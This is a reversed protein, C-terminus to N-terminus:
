RQRVFQRVAIFSGVTGIAMAVTIVVVIQWMPIFYIRPVLLRVLEVRSILQHLPVMGLSLILVGLIAGFAGQLWGELLFPTFIARRSAGLLRMIEIELRHNFLALRITNSIVFAVVGGILILSLGGVFTVGEVIRKMEAVDSQSYRIAEVFSEEAVKSQLAFFVSEVDSFTRMTIQLSIPLPNDEDLGVLAEADEGLSRRFRELATAKDVVTMIAPVSVNRVVQEVSAIEEPQVTDKFFVMVSLESASEALRVSANHLVVLFFGLLFTAIAITVSTLVSTM